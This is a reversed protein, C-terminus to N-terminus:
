VSTVIITRDKENLRAKINNINLLKIIDQISADRRLRGEFDTEPKKGQFVVNVDYWREIQRMTYELDHGGVPIFGNTWGIIDEADVHQVSINGAGLKAQEGPRITQFSNGSTVKVKGEVLTTKIAGEEIYAMVNFHTGLVEVENRNGAPTNIKVIFPTKAIQGKQQQAGPQIQPNVEFYAEGTLEVVRENGAFAIPFRLSSAANLWVKSGDPLTIQYEGGRPTTVTNFLDNSKVSGDSDPKKNYILRGDTKTVQMHGQEAVNGNQVNNLIISSGDALTLTAKNGGPIIRNKEGGNNKNNSATQNTAFQRNFYWGGVSLFLIVVAAAAIKFILTKSTKKEPYLDILKAGGDIKQLTKKWIAESDASAYLRLKERLENKDTLQKFFADNHEAEALWAKLELDEEASLREELFKEILSTIRNVKEQM